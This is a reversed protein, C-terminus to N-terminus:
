EMDRQNAVAAKHAARIERSKAVGFGYQYVVSIEELSLGSPEPYCYFIFVLGAQYVDAVIVAFCLRSM